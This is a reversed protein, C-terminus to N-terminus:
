GRVAEGCRGVNKVEKAKKFTQFNVTLLSDTEEQHLDDTHSICRVIAAKFTEFDVYYHPYVWMIPAAGREGGPMFM